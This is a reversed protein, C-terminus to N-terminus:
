PASKGKSPDSLCVSLGAQPIWQGEMQGMVQEESLCRGPSRGVQTDGPSQVPCYNRWVAPWADKPVGDTQDGEIEFLVKSFLPRVRLRRNGLRM